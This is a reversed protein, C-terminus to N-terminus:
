RSGLSEMPLGPMRRAGNGALIKEFAEEYGDLMAEVSFREEVSERCRHPDVDDVRGSKDRRDDRGM